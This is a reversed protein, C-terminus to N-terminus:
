ASTPASPAPSTPSAPRRCSASSPVDVGASPLGAVVAAELFQGSIRTDRGVVAFPRHGEFVGAEGLVHAAAVSLDLALEATLEATPWGASGTPASCAVWSTREASPSSPRRAPRRSVPRRASSSARTVPSCGPRRSRAARNAELDIANLARAVGLRLAGAQGTIGGGHIRAIVDFRGVLDTTVFPENVVQQHLKNPFYCDLARGNVTWEGTGPVLRM